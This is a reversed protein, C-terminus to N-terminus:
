GRRGFDAWLMIMYDALEKREASTMVVGERTDEGGCCCIHREAGEFVNCEFDIGIVSDQFEITKGTKFVYQDNTTFPM